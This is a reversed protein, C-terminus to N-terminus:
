GEGRRLKDIHANLRAQALAFEAEIVQADAPDGGGKMEDARCMEGYQAILGVLANWQDPKSEKKKRPM